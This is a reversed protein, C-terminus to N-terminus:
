DDNKWDMFAYIITEGTTSFVFQLVRTTVTSRFFRLLVPFFTAVVAYAIIVVAALLKRFRHNIWRMDEGGNM